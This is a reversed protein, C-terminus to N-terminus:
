MTRISRKLFRAVATENGSTGSKSEEEFYLGAKMCLEDMRERLFNNKWSGEYVMGNDNFYAGRGNRRPGDDVLVGEHCKVHQRERGKGTMRDNRFEGVYESDDKFRYRGVVRKRKFRKCPGFYM